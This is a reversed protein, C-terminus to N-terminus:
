MSIAWVLDFLMSVSSYELACPRIHYWLLSLLPQARCLLGGFIEPLSLGLSYWATFEQQRHLAHFCLFSVFRLAAYNLEIYVDTVNTM